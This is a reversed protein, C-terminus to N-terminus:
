RYLFNSLFKLHVNAVSFDNFFVEVCLVGIAMLKDFQQTGSIVILM